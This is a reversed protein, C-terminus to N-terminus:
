GTSLFRSSLFRVPSNKVIRHSSKGSMPPPVLLSRSRAQPTAQHEVASRIKLGIRDVKPDLLLRQGSPNLDIWQILRPTPNQTQLTEVARDEIRNDIRLALRTLPHCPAITKRPRFRETALPLRIRPNVNRHAISGVPRDFRKSIPNEIASTVAPSQLTKLRALRLKKKSQTM